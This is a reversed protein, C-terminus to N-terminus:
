GMLYIRDFKPDYLATVGLGFIASINFSFPTPADPGTSNVQTWELTDLRLISTSFSQTFCWDSNPFWPRAYPTTACTNVFSGGYSVLLPPRNGRPPVYVTAAPSLLEPGMNFTMTSMLSINDQPQISPDVPFSWLRPDPTYAVECSTCDQWDPGDCPKTIQLTEALILVRGHAGWAPDMFMMSFPGVDASFEQGLLAHSQWTSRVSHVALCAVLVRAGSHFNSKGICPGDLTVM